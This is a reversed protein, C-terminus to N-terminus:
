AYMILLWVMVIAFVSCRIINSVFEPKEKMKFRKLLLLVVAVALFCLSAIALGRSDVDANFTLASLFALTSLMYSSYVVRRIVIRIGAVKKESDFRRMMMLFYLFALLGLSIWVGYIAKAVECTLVVLCTTVILLVLTELLNFYKAVFESINKIM